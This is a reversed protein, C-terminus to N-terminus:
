RLLFPPLLEKALKKVFHPKGPPKDTCILVPQGLVDTRQIYAPPTPDRHQYYRHLLLEEDGELEALLADHLKSAHVTRAIYAKHYSTLFIRFDNEICFRFLASAIGPFWPHRFDDATIVGDANLHQEAYHLDRLTAEESHEGDVHILDFRLDAPVESLSPFLEFRERIGLHDLRELMESRVKELGPYPDVGIVRSGSLNLLVM